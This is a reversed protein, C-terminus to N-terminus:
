KNPKTVKWSREKVTKRLVGILEQESLNMTQCAIEHTFPNYAIMIGSGHDPVSDVIRHLLDREAVAILFSSDNFLSYM